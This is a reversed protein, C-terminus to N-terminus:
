KEKWEAYVYKALAAYRRRSFPSPRRLRRFLPICNRRRLVSTFVPQRHRCVHRRVLSHCETRPVRVKAEEGGWPCMIGWLYQIEIGMDTGYGRFVQPADGASDRYVLHKLCM